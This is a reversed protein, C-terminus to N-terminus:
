RPEPQSPSAAVDARLRVNMGDIPAQLNTLCIREGPSIGGDLIAHQRETRMVEIERDRLRYRPEGAGPIPEIVWIHDGSHLAASPVKYVDTVERGAIRAEVFMGILLPIDGPNRQIRAVATLQRTRRDVEGEIRVISGNWTRQAGAFDATLTVRPGDDTQEELPLDLFATEQLPIPLRVELESTDLVVALRQGRQVTQGIDAHVSRVRGSFPLQVKCRLLDTKAGTLLAKAAELALKADRIQPERKALPDAPKEGEIQKWARVAAEAEAKEQLLRLEARAVAAEQQTIRLRYDTADIEILVDNPTFTGGARLAPHTAVIRGGVESALDVTRLAEVSGRAIVDLVETTPEAITTRVIPGANAVPKVIPKPKSNYIQYAAYGGGTIVALPLLTQLILRLYNM